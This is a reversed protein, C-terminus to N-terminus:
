PVQTVSVEYENFDNIVQNVESQTNLDRTWYTTVGNSTTQYIGWKSELMLMAMAAKGPVEDTYSGIKVKFVQAPVPQEVSEQPTSANSSPNITSVAVKKGDKYAVIFADTIGNTRVQNKRAEADAKNTFSGSTYRIFGSVTREAMVDNVNFLDTLSVPKSYVGIQVSYFEGKMSEWDTAFSPITLIPEELGTGDTSFSQSPKETTTPEDSNSEAISSTPNETVEITAETNSATEETSGTNVAVAETDTTMARAESLSIREGNLFAVVFADSYGRQRIQGKAEDASNYDIFLGATYRKIGNNLQEASLPAFDGFHDQPIPNRFAGVQVKYVVGTPLEPDVPIPTEESYLAEETFGFLNNNLVAPSSFLYNSLAAPPATAVAVDGAPRATPVHTRAEAIVDAADLLVFADRLEQARNNIEEDAAALREDADQVELYRVEANRYQLKIEEAIENREEETDAVKLALELEAIRQRNENLDAVAANRSEFINQREAQLAELAERSRVMDQYAVTKVIAERYEPTWESEGELKTVLTEETPLDELVTAEPSSSLTPIVPAEERLSEIMEEAVTNLETEEAVSTESDATTTEEEAINAESEDTVATNALASDSSTEDQADSSNALATDAEETESVWETDATSSTESVDATDETSSDDSTEEATLAEAADSPAEWQGKVIASRTEQDLALIEEENSIMEQVRHQIAIAELELALAQDYEYAQKIDDIEPAAGLRIQSAENINDQARELERQIYKLTEEDTAFASNELAEDLEVETTEYMEVAKESAIKSRKVKAAAADFYAKEIAKDLKKKKGDKEARELELRLEQVELENVVIENVSRKFNDNDRLERAVNLMEPHSTLDDPTLVEVPQLQENLAMLTEENISSVSEVESTEDTSEVVETAASEESDITSVPEEISSALDPTSSAIEIAQLRGIEQQLRDRDEENSTADIANVRETIANDIQAQADLGNMDISLQDLIETETDALAAPLDIAPTSEELANVASEETNTSYDVSEESDSPTSSEDINADAVPEESASLSLQLDTKYQELRQKNSFIEDNLKRHEVATMDGMQHEEISELGRIYQKTLEIQEETQDAFPLQQAIVDRLEEEYDSKLAEANMRSDLFAQAARLEQSEEQIARLEAADDSEMVARENSDLRDDIDLAMQRMSELSNTREAMSNAEEKERWSDAGFVKEYTAKAQTASATTPTENNARQEAALTAQYDLSSTLLEERQDLEEPTLADVNMSRLFAIQDTVDRLQMARLAAKQEDPAISENNIRQVESAYTDRMGTVPKLQVDYSVAQASLGQLLTIDNRTARMEEDLKMLTQPDTIALGDLKEETQALENQLMTAQMEDYASAEGAPEKAANEYFELQTRLDLEEAGLNEASRTKREIEEDVSAIEANLQSLEDQLEERVSKKSALELEKEKRRMRADLQDRENRLNSIRELLKRESEEKEAAAAVTERIVPIDLGQESEDHYEKLINLAKDLDNSAIVETVEIYRDNKAQASNDIESSADHLSKSAILANSAERRLEEAEVLLTQYTVLKDFYSPDDESVGQMLQEAELTKQSALASNSAAKQLLEGSHDQLQPALNKSDEAAQKMESLVDDLSMNRDFGALATLQDESIEERLSEEEQTNELQDLLEDTVNVDLGQKKRLMEASLEAINVDLPAGFENTIYLKQQGGEDVIRLEQRLAVSGGFDPVEFSGSHIIPGEDPQVQITYLGAKPLDLLYGKEGRDAKTEIIPKGTLEDIIKLRAGPGLGEANAFYAGQIFTTNVPIQKVMVKYVSMENQATNRSSAFYATQKLSDVVYFIDDDPTNIAFDLNVAQSFRNSTADYDCRFIDYGGMSNHGKSAFYFTKGDPHMFAFDEDYATNVTSPLRIPNSFEGGPLIDARYIDKGYKGDKGYSTFFITLADGPFHMVSVLEAKRDYKSLLDEPTKLVRGGIEELNYYRFFDSSAANTKELVVVDKIDSLLDGGQDCMQINREAPLPNKEKPDLKMLYKMYADKAQAFEYNLHYARGLYFFVRVDSCNKKVAFNLHRIAKSKDVGAYLACTGFRFNLEADKPHLSVLQSYVPYAQAFKGAEFATEAEARLQTEEKSTQANLNLVMACILLVSTVLRKM